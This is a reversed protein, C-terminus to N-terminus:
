REWKRDVHFERINSNAAKRKRAATKGPVKSKAEIYASARLQATKRRDEDIPLKISRVLRSTVILCEMPSGHRSM